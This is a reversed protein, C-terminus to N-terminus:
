KGEQRSSLSAFGLKTMLTQSMCHIIWNRMKVCPSLQIFLSLQKQLTSLHIEWHKKPIPYIATISLHLHLCHAGPSVGGISWTVMCFSSQARHSLTVNPVLPFASMQEGCNKRVSQDVHRSQLLWWVGFPIFNTLNTSPLYLELLGMAVVSMCLNWYTHTNGSGQTLVAAFHAFFSRQKWYLLHSETCLSASWCPCDCPLECATPKSLQSPPLTCFHRPVARHRPLPTKPHEGQPSPARNTSNVWETQLIAQSTHVSVFRARVRGRIFRKETIAMWRNCVLVHTKTSSVNIM